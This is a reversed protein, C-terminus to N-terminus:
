LLGIEQIDYNFMDGFGILLYALKLVFASLKSM